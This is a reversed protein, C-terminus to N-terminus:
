ALGAEQAEVTCEYAISPRFSPSTLPPAPPSALDLFLAGPEVRFHLRLELQPPLEVESEQFLTRLRTWRKASSLALHCGPEGCCYLRGSKLTLTIALLAGDLSADIGYDPSGPQDARDLKPGRNSALYKEVIATVEVTM